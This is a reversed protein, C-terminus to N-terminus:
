TSGYRKSLIDAKVEKVLTDTINKTYRIKSTKESIIKFLENYDFMKELIVPYLLLLLHYDKGQVSPDKNKPNLTEFPYIYSRWDHFNEVPLPGFLINVPRAHGQGIAVMYFSGLRSLNVEIKEELVDLLLNDGAIKVVGQTTEMSIITTKLSDQAYRGVSRNILDEDDLRKTVRRSVVSVGKFKGASWLGEYTNKFIQNDILTLHVFRTTKQSKLEQIMELARKHYKPVGEHCIRLDQGILAESSQKILGTKQRILFAPRNLYRIQNNEDILLIGDDMNDTFLKLLENVGIM